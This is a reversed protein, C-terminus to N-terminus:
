LLTQDDHLPPPGPMYASQEVLYAKFDRLAAEEPETLHGLHGHPYGYDAAGASPM